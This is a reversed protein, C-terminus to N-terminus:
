EASDSNTLQDVAEMEVKLESIPTGKGAEMNVLRVQDMRLLLAMAAKAKENFTVTPESMMTRGQSFVKTYNNLLETKDTNKKAIKSTEKHVWDYRAETSVSTNDDLMIQVINKVNALLDSTVGILETGQRFTYDNYDTTVKQEEKNSM